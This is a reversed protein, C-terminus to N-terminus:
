PLEVRDYLEAMAVGALAGAERLRQPVMTVLREESVQSRHERLADLKHELHASVDVAVSPQAPNSLFVEAVRHPELGEDLLEPFMLRDRASPFVADLCAQAAARHDPHNLFTPGHHRLPDSTLVAAPRTRRIVRVLDRRLALTNELTGDPFGLWHIEAVGLVAAAAAAERARVVAVEASTLTPDGTGKDGNTCLCLEVHTGEERWRAVTAGASFEMDDPHAMVVLLSAPPPPDILM